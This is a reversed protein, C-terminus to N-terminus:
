RETALYSSFAIRSKEESYQLVKCLNNVLNLRYSILTRLIQRCFAVLFNQTNFFWEDSSIQTKGLNGVVCLKIEKTVTRLLLQPFTVNKCADTQGRTPAHMALPPTHNFLRLHFDKVVYSNEFHSSLYTHYKHM